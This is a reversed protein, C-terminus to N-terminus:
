RQPSLLIPLQILFINLFCNTSLISIHTFSSLLQFSYPYLLFINFSSLYHLYIFSYLTLFIIFTLIFNIFYLYIPNHTIHLFKIIILIIHFTISIFNFHNFILFTQIIKPYLNIFKLGVYLLERVSYGRL